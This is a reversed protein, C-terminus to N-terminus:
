DLSSIHKLYNGCAYKESSKRYSHWKKNFIQGEFPMWTSVVLFVLYRVTQNYVNSNMIM